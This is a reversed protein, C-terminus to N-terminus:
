IEPSWGTSQEEEKNNFDFIAKEMKYLVSDVNTNAIGSITFIELKNNTHDLLLKKQEEVQEPLLADIKNLAIIQPRKLIKDDYNNLEEVIIDYDKCVTDSTVDILHLIIKTREVHALFRHGLGHGESAGEILGPLDAIIFESLSGKPRVVGLGPYITTFPYDATKPNASSVCKLFTSKGANPLGVLGADAILKLKLWIWYEEGPKGNTFKRPAQNTSTKFTANGRGSDGGYAITVKDGEDVLDFLLHEGTEDFIQTGVPVKVIKDKGNAGTRDKGMGHHGREAKFHQAYRFDILTNLNQIAEIIVDGGKGGNGGNPGGFEVFAERRFSVCGDGGAGSQVFIKAKDLFKM